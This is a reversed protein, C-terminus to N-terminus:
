RVEQGSQLFSRKIECPYLYSGRLRMKLVAPTGIERNLEESFRESLSM